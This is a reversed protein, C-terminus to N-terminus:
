EIIAPNEFAEWIDNFISNAKQIIKLNNTFIATEFNHALSYQTVNASGILIGRDTIIDKSHLNGIFKGKLSEILNKFDFAKYFNFYGLPNLKNKLNIILDKNNAERPRYLIKFDLKKNQLNERKLKEEILNAFYFIDADYYSVTLYIFKDSNQILEAIKESIERKDRISDTTLYEIQSLNKLEKKIKTLENIKKQLKEIKKNLFFPRYLDYIAKCLVVIEDNEEIIKYDKINIDNIVKIILNNGIHEISFYQNYFNVLFLLESESLSQLNFKKQIIQNLIYLVDLIKIRVFGYNNLIHNIILFFSKQIERDLKPSLGERINIKLINSLKM